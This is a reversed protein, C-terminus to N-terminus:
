AACTATRRGPGRRSPSSIRARPARRSPAERPSPAARRRARRLDDGLVGVDHLDPRPVHLVVRQELDRAPEAPRDQELAAQTSRDLLQQLRGVVDELLAVLRDHEALAADARELGGRAEREVEARDRPQLEVRVQRHDDVGRVGGPVPPQDPRQGPAAAATPASPSITSTSSSRRPSHSPGAPATRRSEAANGGLAGGVRPAPCAGPRFRPRAASARASIPVRERSRDASRVNHRVHWASQQQAPDLPRSASAAASPPHLVRRSM